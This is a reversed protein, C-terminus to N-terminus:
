ATKGGFKTAISKVVPSVAEVHNSYQRQSSSKHCQSVTIINAM